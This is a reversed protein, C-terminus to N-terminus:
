CLQFELWQSVVRQERGWGWARAIVILGQAKIVEVIKTIEYLHFGVNNTSREGTWKM